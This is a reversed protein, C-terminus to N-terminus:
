ITFEDDYAHTYAINDDTSYTTILDDHSQM